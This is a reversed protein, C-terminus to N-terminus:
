FRLWGRSEGNQPCATKQAGADCVRSSSVLCTRSSVRELSRSFAATSRASASLSEVAGAAAAVALSELAHSSSLGDSGWSHGGECGAVEEEEAV